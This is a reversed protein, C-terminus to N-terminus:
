PLAKIFLYCTRSDVIPDYATNATPLKFETATNYTTATLSYDTTKKSTSVYIFYKEDNFDEIYYSVSSQPFLVHWDILDTSTIVEYNGYAVYGNSTVTVPTSPTTALYDVVQENYTVFDTTWTIKQSYGTGIFQTGDCTWGGQMYPITTSTSTWTIGDTSTRVVSPYFEVFLSGAKFLHYCGDTNTVTDTFTVFDTTRSFRNTEQISFLGDEFTINCYAYTKSMYSIATWTVLDTSTSINTYSTSSGSRLKYIVWLGNGYVIYSNGQANSLSPLFSTWNIGDTTYYCTSGYSSGLAFMTDGVIVLSGITGLGTSEGIYAGILGVKSFLEPYTAQSVISGDALLWSEDFYITPDPEQANASVWRLEGVEEGGSVAPHTHDAPANRDDRVTPAPHNTLHSDPMLSHEALKDVLGSLDQDDSGPAHINALQTDSVYNQDLTLADAKSTPDFAYDTQLNTFGPFTTKATNLAIAADQTDKDSYLETLMYNLATRFALLATNNSLTIKAM